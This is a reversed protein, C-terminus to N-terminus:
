CFLLKLTCTGFNWQLHPRGLKGASNPGTPAERAPACNRGRGPCARPARRRRPWAGAQLRWMLNHERPTQGRTSRAPPGIGSLTRNGLTSHSLGPHGPGAQRRASPASRACSLSARLAGRGTGRLRLHTAMVRIAPPGSWLADFERSPVSARIAKSHPSVGLGPM